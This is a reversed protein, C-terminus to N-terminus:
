APVEQLDQYVLKGGKDQLVLPVQMELIEQTVQIVLPEKLALCVLVVQKALIELHARKDLQDKSDKRVLLELLDLEEVLELPVQSVLQAKFELLVQWDGLVQAVRHDQTAQQGRLEQLVVQDLLELSALDALQVKPVQFVLQELKVAVALPAGLVLKDKVELQDQRM